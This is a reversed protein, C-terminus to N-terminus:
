RMQTPARSHFPNIAQLLDSIAQHAPIMRQVATAAITKLTAYTNAGRSNRSCHSVKRAIVAARLVREARNNTPEVAPDDLFRLLNGRRHHWGLGDILTQNARNRLKRPRLLRDLDQKLQAGRSAYDDATVNAIKFDKWLVAADEFVGLINAGVTQSAPKQGEMANEISRRIHESCKNQRVAALAKADYSIGRDTSVIGAYDGPIVRRVEENRHRPCIQFVTTDQTHFGMLWAPKGAVRWGTDDTYIVPAKPVDQVLADYAQRGGSESLKEASQTLASQTVEIGTLMGLVQPVKRLPLGLNYHLALAAGKLRPGLRHATAGHQGPAVDPHTARVRRGCRKCRCVEIRVHKVVPAPPAQPLDTTSVTEYGDSELEGGCSPCSTESVGADEVPGPAQPPGRRSFPGQGSKRGPRKKSKKPKNRSFPAVYSGVRRELEEIRVRLDANEARLAANEALLEEVLRRM